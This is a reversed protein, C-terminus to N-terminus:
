HQSAHFQTNHNNAVPLIKRNHECNTNKVVPTHSRRVLLMAGQTSGTYVNCAAWQHVEQYFINDLNADNDEFCRLM